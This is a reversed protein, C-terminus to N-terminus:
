YPQTIKVNKGDIEYQLEYIYALSEMVEKLTPNKFTGTFAKQFSSPDALIDFDVDYWRTLTTIVENFSQDVLVLRQDLWGFIVADEQIRVKSAPQVGRFVVMEDAELTVVSPARESSVQVKGERVAVVVGQEGDYSKVDFATGLVRTQVRKTNVVFPRQEDRSVKFFAEGVLQVERKGQGFHKPFTLRSGSNLKVQTGDSLEITLKQGFDAEKEVLVEASGGGDTRGRELELFLYSLGVVVFLLAAVRWARSWFVRSQSVEEEKFVSAQVKASVRKKITTLETTPVKWHSVINEFVQRNEDREQLWERLAIAESKDLRNQLYKLILKEM